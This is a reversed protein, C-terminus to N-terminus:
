KFIHVTNRPTKSIFMNNGTNMNQFKDYLELYPFYLVIEQVIILEDSVSPFSTM